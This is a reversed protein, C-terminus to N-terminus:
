GRAIFISRVGERFGIAHQTDLQAKLDDRHIVIEGEQLVLKASRETAPPEDPPLPLIYGQAKEQDRARDLAARAEPKLERTM